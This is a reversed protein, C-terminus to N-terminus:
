KLLLYVYEIMNKYKKEKNLLELIQKWEQVKISIDVIYDDMINQM